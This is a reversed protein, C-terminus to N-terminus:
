VLEMTRGCGPCMDSTHSMHEGCWNCYYMRSNVEPDADTM